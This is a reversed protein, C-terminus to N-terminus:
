SRFDRIAKNLFERQVEDDTNNYGAFLEACGESFMRASELLKSHASDFHAQYEEEGGWCLKSSFEAGSALRQIDLLVRHAIEEQGAAVAFTRTDLM